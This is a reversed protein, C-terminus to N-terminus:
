DKVSIYFSTGKKLESEVKIDAKHIEKIIKYTIAMGLGTGKIASKTASEGQKFPTFIEKLEDADMGYGNDCISINHQNEIKEYNIKIESNNDSFKIANSLINLLAQKFLQSDVYMSKSNDIGSINLKISKQMASTEVLLIVEDFLEKINTNSPNYKMENEDMKSFDLISNVLTLLNQGSINIKEIYKKEKDALSSKRQLIQSFGIIANLPTRLEHSMNALFMGKAKEADHAKQLAIHLSTTDYRIALFELINNDRDLIPVITAFVYYEQGNKTKNKINGKWVKKSLITQWMDKFIKKDTDPHNVINHPYGILEDKTYGSIDIFSNNVYTIKGDLNAKSVIAGLDVARKYESLLQINTNSKEKLHKNKRSIFVFYYIAVISFNFMIFFLINMTFRDKFISSNDIPVSVEIVGRIDGLKWDTKPTDPRTNHCNVCSNASLYDPFATRYILRGDKIDESSYPKDNHKLIYKLSEQQFKDLVRDQRNPFPFDSYMQVSIDSGNTFLEGLDHVVTAPLPITTDFKKHDFNVKLDTHAKVKSLIDSNYYSRFMRIYTVLRQSEKFADKEMQEKTLYPILYLLGVLMIVTITIIAGIMSEKFYKYFFNNIM